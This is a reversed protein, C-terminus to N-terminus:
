ADSRRAEFVRLGTESMRGEAALEGVRSINTVSWHSRTRRPTFRTAYRADDIRRTLGDIWGFCLAEDVSELYTIGIGGSGKKWYGVWLERESAHNDALWARYDAPTAFFIADEAKM